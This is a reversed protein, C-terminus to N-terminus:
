TPSTIGLYLLPLIIIFNGFIHSVHLAFGTLLIFYTLKSMKLKTRVVYLLVGLLVFGLQGKIAYFNGIIISYAALVLNFVVFAILIYLFTWHQLELKIRQLLLRM